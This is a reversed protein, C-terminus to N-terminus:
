INMTTYVVARWKESYNTLDLMEEGERCIAKLDTKINGERRSRPRGLWRKGWWFGAGRRKEV